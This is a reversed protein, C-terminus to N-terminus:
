NAVMKFSFYENAKRFLSYFFKEYLDIFAFPIFAVPIGFYIIYIDPSLSIIASRTFSLQVQCM